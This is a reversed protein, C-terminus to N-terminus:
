NSHDPDDGPINTDKIPNRSVLGWTSGDQMSGRAGIELLLKRVQAHDTGVVNALTDINAWGWGKRDLMSLLLKKAAEDSPDPRKRNLYANLWTAALTLLGGVVSGLVAAWGSDM